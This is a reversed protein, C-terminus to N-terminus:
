SLLIEVNYVCLRVSLRVSLKGHCYLARRLMVRYYSTPAGRTRAPGLKWCSPISDVRIYIILSFWWKRRDWEWKFGVRCRVGAFIRMLRIIFVAIGATPSCKRRQYIPRDENVNKHHAGFSMHTICCLAYYGNLTFEPDDLTTPKPLLWFRTRSKRNTILLLLPGIKCRKPSVTTIIPRFIAFIALKYGGWDWFDGESPTVRKFKAILWVNKSVLINLSESPSSIMVSAKKTKFGSPLWGSAPQSCVYMGVRVYMRQVRSLWGNQCYGALLQSHLLLKIINWFTTIFQWSLQSDQANNKINCM